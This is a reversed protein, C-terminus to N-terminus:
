SPNIMAVLVFERLFRVTKFDVAASSIERPYFRRFKDDEEGMTRAPRTQFMRMQEAPLRYFFFHGLSWNIRGRLQCRVPGSM